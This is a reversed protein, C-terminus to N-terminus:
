CRGSWSPSFLLASCLERLCVLLRAVVHFASRFCGLCLLCPSWISSGSVVLVVSFVLLGCLCVLLLFCCSGEPLFPQIGDVWFPHGGGSSYGDGRTVLSTLLVPGALPPTYPPPDRENVWFLFACPLFFLLSCISGWVWPSDGLALILLPAQGPISIRHAPPGQASLFHLLSLVFGSSSVRFCFSWCLFLCLFCIILSDPGQGDRESKQSCPTSLSSCGWALHEQGEQKAQTEVLSDCLRRM